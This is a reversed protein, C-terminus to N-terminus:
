ERKVKRHELWDSAYMIVIHRGNDERAIVVPVEGAESGLQAQALWGMVTGLKKRRKCEIRYPPDDIDNGGERAQGLKRRYKKGEAYVELLACVEREFASGKRRSKGAL